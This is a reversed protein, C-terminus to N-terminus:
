PLVRVIYANEPLLYTRAMRRLTQADVAQATEVLKKEFDPSLQASLLRAAGGSRSGLTQRGRYYDGRLLNKGRVLAEKPLVDRQLGTLVSRFGADAQELKQPETGIYFALLGASESQWPFATVTYGLGQDDRLQSFLLGSQGALITQLLELAPTDEHTVPVTKFIMLMHAQNRSELSIDLQKTENWIPASPSVRAATPVILQEALRLIESRDFRGCVALVWPQAQQMNWFAAIDKTQYEKIREPEGLHLYGYSSEAFLFPFLRRFALGLAQDQRSKIAAIQSRKERALEDEALVPSTLIDKFLSLIDTSFREPYQASITFSTRGATAGLAAARDAKFSELATNDMQQTAKTLVRAALAALGQENPSLLADGGRFTLDVSAYPLSNDPILVVTRGNGLDIIEEGHQAPATAPPPSQQGSSWQSQFAANVQQTDIQAQEPVLLIGRLREPLLFTDIAEQITQSSVHRLNQLYNREGQEGNEFFQFYGLKSALGSLTEKSRFLDDELNLKAREMAQASFMEANMSGWFAALEKIFDDLHEADLVANIYLMGTREFAYAGVSIDDVLQKDYKFTHYLLSTKDGGLMQGLVEVTPIRADHFDPLPLAFGAYVKNWKGPEVAIAQGDPAMSPLLPLAPEITRTNKLDGFLREAEVIVQRAEVNGCVVLLMSQPQYYTNIYDHINQASLSSVTNRFGIIPREYPTGALAAAQLRKFLLSGPTDEGRQLESLVVDQEKQLEEPDITAGFTMDKLVELGLKWHEAPLDALYVTYDFSTAANISGGVQEITNAVGGKAHKETGKFVMHELLHSIGAQDDAEYASGAHVYLRVSVLPFRDDQQALVTLGNALRVVDAAHAAQAYLTMLAAGMLLAMTRYLTM